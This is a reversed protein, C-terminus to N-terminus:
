EGADDRRLPCYEVREGIDKWYTLRVFKHAHNLIYFSASPHFYDKPLKAMEM